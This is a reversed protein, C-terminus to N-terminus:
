QFVIKIMTLEVFQTLQCKLFKQRRVVRPRSDQIICRRVLMIYYEVPGVKTRNRTTDSTRFANKIPSENSLALATPRM